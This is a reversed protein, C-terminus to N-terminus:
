ENNDDSFPLMRALFRKVRDLPGAPEDALSGSCDDPPVMQFFDACSEGSGDRGCCAEFATQVGKDAFEPIGGHPHGTQLDM